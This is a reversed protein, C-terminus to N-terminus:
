QAQGGRAQVAQQLGRAEANSGDLRLAAAVETQAAPVQGALLDLRALVLHAPANDRLAISKQALSRAADRDATRERVRALGAYAEASNPNAALARNYERESEVVLGANLHTNADAVLAATRKAPPEAAGRLAEMQELEFAAQRFAAEDYSRKIRELPLNASNQPLWGPSRLNAAFGAIEADGPKFQLASAAEKEANAADGRRAYALSLNWHYDADKPDGAIAQQFLPAGDKGRRATAVGQNNVVEPLPLRTSVFAFADEAPLYKGTYFYALGRSFDAQLANPDNRTLHGYALAAQEYDQAAFEADGLALWAPGYVPDLRVADRLRRM